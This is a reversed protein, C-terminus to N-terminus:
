GAQDERYRKFISVWEQADESRVVDNEDFMVIDASSNYRQMLDLILQLGSGEPLHDIQTIDGTIVFQCNEGKRTLFLRFDNFTCNQSEDLIVVTSEDPHGLTRGRLHEFSVFEIANDNTYKELEAASMEDRFAAMIPVLWPALKQNLKGPLFGQRHRADAVTPRAIYIKTVTGLRLRRAAHRAPLYTKGTGAEGIAFIQCSTNLLDLYTQQNETRAVLPKSGKSSNRKEQKLQRKDRRSLPTSPPDFFKTEEITNLM